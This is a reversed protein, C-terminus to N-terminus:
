SKKTMEMHSCIVKEILQKIINQRTKNADLAISLHNEPVLTRLFDKLSEDEM